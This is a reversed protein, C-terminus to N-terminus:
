PMRGTSTWMGARKPTADWDSIVFIQEKKGYGVHGDYFGINAGENHRYLTPGDVRPTSNKYTNINAQRLKDWGVRYDAGGWWVWWDVSDTFALKESPQPVKDAFHGGYNHIPPLWGGAPKFETYNYGYSLLVSGVRNAPDRSIRDAPCLFADPLDFDSVDQKEKYTDMQVCKRFDKNTPWQYDKGDKARYVVPAYANNHTTAYLANATGLSKLHNGCVIRQAMEKAKGLSPILIALLLAIISIVVLLEILTFGKHRRM